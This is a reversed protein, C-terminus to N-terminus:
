AAGGVLVSLPAPAISAPLNVLRLPGAHKLKADAPVEGSDGQVIHRYCDEVENAPDVRNYWEFKRKRDAAFLYGYHLLCADLMGYRVKEGQPANGTHLGCHTGIGKYYSEFTWAPNNRFLSMRSLKEYLGDVRIQNERDWLYLVRLSFIDAANSACAKRIKEVGGRELEEDGDILLFWDPCGGIDALWDARVRNVLWTKDRVENLPLDVFPSAYVVAGRQIAIVRTDDTSADDMVFVPGLEKVSDIVRGIWRAENKVRMLVAINQSALSPPELNTGPEFQALGPFLPYGPGPQFEPVLSMYKLHPVWAKPDVAFELGANQAARCFALDEGLIGHPLRSDLVPLFPRPGIDRLVSGRMLFCPFGTASIAKLETERQFEVPPFPRWHLQDPSWEGCSVSFMKQADDHIWCWGTVGDLELDSDLDSLLRDFVEPSCINDDDLWLILDIEPSQVARLADLTEQRTVYVNSTYSRFRIVNFGSRIFHDNLALVGDLWEGRFNEGSLCLAITRKKSGASEQNSQGLVAGESEDLTVPGFKAARRADLVRAGSEYLEMANQARDASDVDRGGQMWHRHPFILGRADIIAGDQKAHEYFDNDAYMSEYAPYFVYGLREYRARSLIPMVMIKREHESRTGTSVSVVFDDGLSGSKYLVDWIKSDWGECAFQDDAVVILIKGSSARAALNVGSVYGSHKYPHTNWALVCRPNKRWCEVCRNFTLAPRHETFGWREDVCLVYEVRAPDAARGIWDDYVKRWADPRASTHLISFLPKQAMQKFREEM